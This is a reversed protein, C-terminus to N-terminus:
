FEIGNEVAACALIWAQKSSVYAVRSKYNKPAREEITKAVQAAFVGELHKINNIFRYFDNYYEAYSSMTNYASREAVSEIHRAVKQKMEYDNTKM